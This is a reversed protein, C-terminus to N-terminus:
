RTPKEASKSTPELIMRVRFTGDTIDYRVQGQHQNVFALISRTGIGHGTQHSVPFGQSDLRVDPACSNSVQLLLQDTCSATFTIWRHDAPLDMCGHLANELLNSITMALEFSDIGPQEPIDLNSRFAIGQQAAQALHYTTIANIVSNHCYRKPQQPATDLKQSLMAKAHETDGEKLLGLLTADRHRQDHSAIQMQKQSDEMLHLSHEMAKTSAYLIAEDDKMKLNEEHIMVNESIERLSWFVSLYFLITIITLFAYLLPYSSFQTSHTMLIGYGTLIATAVVFYPACHQQALIYLPRLKHYFLWAILALLVVRVVTVSYPSHPASPFMELGLFRVVCLTNLSTIINFCWQIFTDHFMPKILLLAPILVFVDVLVVLHYQGKAYCIGNPIMDLICILFTVLYVKWLAKRPQALSFILVAVMLNTTFSRILDPWM